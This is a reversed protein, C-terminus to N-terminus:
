VAVVTGQARQEREVLQAAVQSLQLLQREVDASDITGVYSINSLLANNLPSM